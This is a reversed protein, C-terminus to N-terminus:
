FCKHWLQGQFIYKETISMLSVASASLMDQGYDNQIQKKEKTRLILEHSWSELLLYM